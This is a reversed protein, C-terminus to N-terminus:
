LSFAIPQSAPQPPLRLHFYSIPSLLYSIPLTKRSRSPLRSLSPSRPITSSPLGCIPSPSGARILKLKPKLQLFKESKPTRNAVETLLPRGLKFDQGRRNEKAAALKPSNLRPGVSSEHVQIHVNAPPLHFIASPLHPFKFIWCIAFPM